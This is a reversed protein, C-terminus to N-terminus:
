EEEEMIAQAMERFSINEVASRLLDQKLGNFVDGDNMVMEEVTERLLTDLNYLTNEEVTLVESPDTVALARAHELLKKQHNYYEQDNDLWLKTVWTEYNKWGNYTENTKEKTEM